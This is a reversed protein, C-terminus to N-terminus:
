ILRHWKFTSLAVFETHDQTTSHNFTFSNWTSTAVKPDQPQPQYITLQTSSENILVIREGKHVAPPLFYINNDIPGSIQHGQLKAVKCGVPIFRGEVGSLTVVEPYLSPNGQLGTVLTYTDTRKTRQLIRTRVKWDSNGSSYNDTDLYQIYLNGKPLEWPQWSEQLMLDIENLITTGYTVVMKTVYGNVIHITLDYPNLESASTVDIEPGATVYTTGAVPFNTDVAGFTPTLRTHWASGWGNIANPVPWSGTTGSTAPYSTGARHFATTGLTGFGAYLQKGSTSGLVSFTVIYNFQQPNITPKTFAFDVARSSNIKELIGDTTTAITPSSTTSSTYSWEPYYGQINDQLDIPNTKVEALDNQVTVLDHAYAFYSINGFNSYRIVRNFEIEGNSASTMMPAGNEIISVGSTNGFKTGITLRGAAEGEKTVKNAQLDSIDTQTVEQSTQLTSVDQELQDLKRKRSVGFINMKFTQLFQTIYYYFIYTYYIFFVEKQKIIRQRAICSYRKIGRV